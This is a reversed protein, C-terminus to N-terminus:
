SICGNIQSLDNYSELLAEIKYRDKESLHTYKKGETTSNDPEM